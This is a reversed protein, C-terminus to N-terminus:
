RRTETEKSSERTVIVPNSYVEGGSPSYPGPQLNKKTAVLTIRYVEGAGVASSGFVGQGSLEGTSSVM